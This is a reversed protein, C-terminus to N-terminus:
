IHQRQSMQQMKFGTRNRLRTLTPLSDTCVQQKEFYFISQEIENQQEKCIVSKLKSYQFQASNQVISSYCNVQPVNLIYLLQTILEVYTELSSFQKNRVIRELPNKIYSM